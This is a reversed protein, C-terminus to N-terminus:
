QSARLLPAPMFTQLLRVGMGFVHGTMARSYCSPPPQAVKPLFCSVPQTCPIHSSPSFPRLRPLSLSSVIAPGLVLLWVQQPGVPTVWVPEVTWVPICASPSWCTPSLGPLLCPKLDGLPQGVLRRLEVPSHCHLSPDLSSSLSKGPPETILFGGALAPSM